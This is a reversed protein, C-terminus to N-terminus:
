QSRERLSRRACAKCFLVFDEEQAVLSAESSASAKNGEAEWHNGPM